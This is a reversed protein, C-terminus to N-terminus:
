QKLKVGFYGGYGDSQRGCQRGSKRSRSGRGILETQKLTQAPKWSEVVKNKHLFKFIVIVILSTSKNEQIDKRPQLNCIEKVAKCSISVTLEEVACNVCVPDVPQVNKM